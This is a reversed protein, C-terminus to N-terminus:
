ARARIVSSVSATEAVGFLKFGSRALLARFQRETCKDGQLM